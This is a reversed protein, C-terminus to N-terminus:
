IEFNSKIAKTAKSKKCLFTFNYYSFYNNLFTIVWKYKSYSLILLKLLNLHILKLLESFHISNELFFVMNTYRELLIIM